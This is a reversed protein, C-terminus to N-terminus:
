ILIKHKYLKKTLVAQLKHLHNSNEQLEKKIEAVYKQDLNLNGELFIPEFLDQLLKGNKDLIEKFDKRLEENDPLLRSFGDIFSSVGEFNRSFEDMDHTIEILYKHLNGVNVDIFDYMYGEFWRFETKETIVGRELAMKYALTDYHIMLKSTYDYLFCAKIEKLFLFNQKLKEMTSYPNFNIFGMYKWYMDADSLLRLTRKNDDVNARKNYIRLDEDNGSEIGVVIQNIGADHMLKLLEIDDANDHFTDARLFAIINVKINNSLLLNCLEKIKEKGLRGPDEFSGGTFMFQRVSSNEYIYKIEDFLDKASRGIWKNYYNVQTCFSCRGVCGHCDCIFATVYQNQFIWKRDPWPLSNIDLAAPVKNELYKSSAINTHNRTFEDLDKKSEIAEILDKFAFEGDGLIVYDIDVFLKDSLIRRYYTTAMKSGMIIIINPNIKKIETALTTCFELNSPYVSFGIIDVELNLSELCYKINPEDLYVAEAKNGYLNLFAVIRGIGVNEGRQKETFTTACLQLNM